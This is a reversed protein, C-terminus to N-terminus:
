EWIIKLNNMFSLVKDQDRKSLSEFITLFQLSKGELNNPSSVNRENNSRDEHSIVTHM